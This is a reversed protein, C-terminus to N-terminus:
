VFHIKDDYKSATKLSNSQYLFLTLTIYQVEVLCKVQYQSLDQKMFEFSLVESFLLFGMVYLICM